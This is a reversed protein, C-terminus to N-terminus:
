MLNLLLHRTLKQITSEVGDKVAHQSSDPNQDHNVISARADSGWTLMDRTKCHEILM